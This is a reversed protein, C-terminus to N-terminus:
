NHRFLHGLKGREVVDKSFVIPINFENQKVVSLVIGERKCLDIM